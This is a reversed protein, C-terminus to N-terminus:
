RMNETNPRYRVGFPTKLPHKDTLHRPIGTESLQRQSATRPLPVSRTKASRTSTTGLAMTFPTLVRSGFLTRLLLMSAYAPHMAGQDREIRMQMAQQHQADRLLEFSVQRCEHDRVSQSVQAGFHVCHTFKEGVTGQIRPRGVSRGIDGGQSQRGVRALEDTVGLVHHEWLRCNDHCHLAARIQIVRWPQRNVVPPDVVDAHIRNGRM